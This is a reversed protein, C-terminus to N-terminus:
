GNRFCKETKGEDLKEYTAEFIEPKCPYFEGQVGKIIYDGVRARMEGELTPVVVEGLQYRDYDIYAGECAKMFTDTILHNAGTWEVAEIVVPKKRYRAM